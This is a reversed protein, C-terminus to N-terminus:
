APRSATAQRPARNRRAPEGLKEVAARIRSEVGASIKWRGKGGHRNLFSCVAAKSVGAERAIDSYTPPKDRAAPDATTRYYKVTQPSVRLEAAAAADSAGARELALVAARRADAIRGRAKRVRSRLEEPAVGVGAAAADAIGKLRGDPRAPGPGGVRRPRPALHDTTRNRRSRKRDMEGARQARRAEYLARKDSLIGLTNRLGTAGQPVAEISNGRALFAAVDAALADSEARKAAPRM